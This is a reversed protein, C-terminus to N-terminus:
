FGLNLNIGYRRATASQLDPNNGQISKDYNNYGAAYQDIDFDKTKAFYLLNRGILSVSATKFFKGNGPRFNYTINVERLKVFTRDIMYYEDFNGGIGSSLYNQVTTAKTNQAFQLDKMNDIQGNTYHPTGSTIVVGQGVYAPTPAVSGQSTSQWEKLRAAGFAGSASAYSTGGNNGQYLVRNYIKGGVRGDFQFSFSFNKYSFKNNIGFVYDPNLHGIFGRNSNDSLSPAQVPIGGAHVINGSGDRVFKTSYYNDLREGIKYTHGNIPLGPEGGFISKLTEKYTSWNAAIDWSFGNPNRIPSGTLSIEWGKKSTTIGNVIHAYSGTSSPIGL